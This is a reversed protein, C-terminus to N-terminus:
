FSAAEHSIRRKKGWVLLDNVKSQMQSFDAITPAFRDTQALAAGDILQQLKDAGYRKLLNNCAYRNKKVNTTIPVGTKNEWYTFMENVELNGYMTAAALEVETSNSNFPTLETPHTLHPSNRTSNKDGGRASKDSGPSVTDGGRANIVVEYLNTTQENNKIRASKVVLGMSILHQICRDLTRVSMGCEEALVKRSPFSKMSDDSHECLWVFVIQLTPALGRIASKNPIVIFEGKQYKM